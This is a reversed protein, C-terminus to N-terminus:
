LAASATVIPVREGAVIASTVKPKAISSETSAM